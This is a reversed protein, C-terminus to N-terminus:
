SATSIEPKSWDWNIVSFLAWWYSFFTTHSWINETIMGVSVACLLALMISCLEQQPLNQAIMSSRLRQLLWGFQGIFLFIFISFGTLGGEILARIYDNHPLLGNGSVEVSNGLGFGLLPYRQWKTMLDTWQALRWNFSNNDGASLLIARGLDIDPNLLPTESISGLRERGFETSAFLAIVIAFLAVGSALKLPSMSPALLMLLFVGLMMLSFLAKTSVLFFALIGLLVIWKWRQPNCKAKWCTLAIFFLLFTAFTNPHGLTGNIRSLEEGPITAEGGVFIPPLISPSVIQLCAISIPIILSIFLASVFRAPHIRDRLQTVLLYVMLWSLLRIWERIAAPMVDPGLGLGGLPLLIVWLSQLAVWGAFFWFFRDTHVPQRTLLQLTVYIITLANLGLAFASTIQYASFPDLASRLILLGLVTYEFQTFLSYLIAGAAIATFIYMPKTSVMLGATLGVVVVAVSAVLPLLISQQRNDKLVISSDGLYLM